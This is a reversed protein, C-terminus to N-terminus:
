PAVGLKNQWDTLTEVINSQANVFGAIGATTVADVQHKPNGAVIVPANAQPVIEKALVLYEVDSSCLVTLDAPQLEASERIAFGGCGFFNASFNARAIRMKSDGRTLLLVTPTHGTARAHRETRLRIREVPEAMRWDFFVAPDPNAQKEDLDPYNNVGVLTRRRSSIAAEIAKRSEAISTEVFPRANAYGGKAEVQQFLKWAKRALADTLWDVYYSGAAPDAVEDLHAEHKLILQVNAALREAFEFPEVILSDCGGIVASFAETTVRLLNTYPDYISKNAIATRAHLRMEASIGFARIVQEWLLRVARLKAIEFFYNSGVGFVFSIARNGAALSDVSAGLAFALEQVATAGSDHFHDARIADSPESGPKAIRWDTRSRRPAWTTSPLDERRFYPKVAIGEPTRWVLNEEYDAGALDARIAAEWESTPVPPFEKALELNATM